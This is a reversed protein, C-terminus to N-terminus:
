NACRQSSDQAMNSIVKSFPVIYPTQSSQALHFNNRFHGLKFNLLFHWLLKKLAFNGPQDKLASASVSRIFSSGRRLSGNFWSSLYHLAIMNEM